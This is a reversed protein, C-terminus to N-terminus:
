ALRRIDDALEAIHQSRMEEANALTVPCGAMSEMEAKWERASMSATRVISTTLSLIKKRTELTM